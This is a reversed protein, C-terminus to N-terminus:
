KKEHKWWEANPEGGNMRHIQERLWSPEDFTPVYTSRVEPAVGKISCVANVTCWGHKTAERVGDLVIGAGGPLSVGEIGAAEELMDVGVLCAQYRPNNARFKPTLDQM